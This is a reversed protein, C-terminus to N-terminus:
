KLEKSPYELEKSDAWIGMADLEANPAKVKLLEVVLDLGAM